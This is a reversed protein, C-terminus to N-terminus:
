RVRILLRHFSQDGALLRVFYAGAPVAARADDRGDWDVRHAGAERLGRDLVRVRRGGVDFVSLEIAGPRALTYGLAASTRFPSPRAAALGTVAPPADGAALTGEPEGVAFEGFSGLATAQTSIATRTGVAPLSWAGERRAVRFLSSDAGPDLDDPHFGFTVDCTTFPLGLNTVTWTRNVGQDPDLASAALDAHDGPDTRVVVTGSDGVSAFALTVPAARAADGVRYDRTLTGGPGPILQGLNGDVWYSGTIGGAPGLHLVHAGTLLRGGSLKVSGDSVLDSALLVAVPNVVEIESRVGLVVNGSANINQAASGSLRMRAVEPGAPDLELTGNGLVVLDGRLDLASDPSTALLQLRGSLISLNDMTCGLTLAVSYTALSDPLNIECDGYRRGDFAGGGALELHRYLSGAQLVVRSAPAPLGFAVDGGQQHYSSGSEFVVVDEAGADGFPSGVLEDMARFSAGSAFVLAGADMPLVRHSGQSAWLEGAIRGTAGPALAIRVSSGSGPTAFLWLRSGAEVIFDDGAAGAIRLTDSAGDNQITVAANGRVHLRGLTQLPVDTVTAAPTMAGDFILADDSAPTNRAPTWSSPTSWSGSPANWTYTHPSPARAALRQWFGGRLVFTGGAHAGADPQGISGSLRHGGGAAATRGGGDITYWTVTDAARCPVTVLALAAVVWGVALAPPGVLGERPSSM